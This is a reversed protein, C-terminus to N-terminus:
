LHTAFEHLWRENVHIIGFKKVTKLVLGNKGKKTWNYVTQRSPPDMGYEEAIWAPVNGIKILRPIRPM